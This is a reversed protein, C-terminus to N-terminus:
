MMNKNKKILMLKEQPFESSLDGESCRVHCEKVTGPCQLIETSANLKLYLKWLSLINWLNNTKLFQM